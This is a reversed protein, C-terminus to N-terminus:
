TPSDPIDKLVICSFIMKECYIFCKRTVERWKSSLFLYKRNSGGKCGSAWITAMGLANNGTGCQPSSPNCQGSFAWTKLVGLIVPNNGQLVQFILLHYVKIRWCRIGKVCWVRAMGWDGVHVRVCGIIQIRRLVVMWFYVAKGGGCLFTNSFESIISTINSMGHFQVLNPSPNHVHSPTVPKAIGLPIHNM